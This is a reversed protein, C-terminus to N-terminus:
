TGTIEKRATAIPTRVLQAEPIVEDCPAPLAPATRHEAVASTQRSRRGPCTSCTGTSSGSTGLAWLIVPILALALVDLAAVTHHPGYIMLTVSPQSLGTHPSETNISTSVVGNYTGVGWLLEHWQAAKIHELVTAETKGWRAVTGLTVLDPPPCGRTFVVQPPPRRAAM